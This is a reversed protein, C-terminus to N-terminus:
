LSQENVYHEQVMVGYGSTLNTLWKQIDRHCLNM